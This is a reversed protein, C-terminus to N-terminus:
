IHVGGRAEAGPEHELPEAAEALARAEMPKVWLEDVLIVIASLIPVSVILGIAGFLQGVVIVGIAIVAPHLKVARAM